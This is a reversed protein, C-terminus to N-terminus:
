LDHAKLKIGLLRRGVEFFVAHRKSIRFAYKEVGKRYVSFVGIGFVFFSEDSNSHFAGPSDQYNNIRKM